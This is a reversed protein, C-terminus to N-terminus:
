ITHGILKKFTESASLHPHNNHHHHSSDPCNMNYIKKTSGSISYVCMHAFLYTCISLCVCINIKQIFFTKRKMKGKDYNHFEWFVFDSIFSYIHSKVSLSPFIYVCKSLPCLMSPPTNAIVNKIMNAVFKPFGSTLIKHYLFEKIDM